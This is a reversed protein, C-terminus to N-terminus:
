ADGNCFQVAGLPPRFGEGVLRNWRRDAVNRSELGAREHLVSRRIRRRVRVRVVRAGVRIISLRRASLFLPLERARRRKRILVVKGGVNAPANLARRGRDAIGIGGCRAREIAGVAKKLIDGCEPACSVESFVAGTVNCARGIGTVLRRVEAEVPARYFVDGRRFVLNIVLQVILACDVRYRAAPQRCHIM